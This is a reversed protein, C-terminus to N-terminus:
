EGNNLKGVLCYEEGEELYCGGGLEHMDCINNQNEDLCCGREFRIEPPSCTLYLGGGLTTTTTESTTTTTESPKSGTSVVVELILAFLLALALLLLFILLIRGLSPVDSENLPKDEETM